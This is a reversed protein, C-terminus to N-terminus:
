GGEEDFRKVIVTKHTDREWVTGVTEYGFASRYWDARRHTVGWVGQKGRERAWQEGRRMLGGGIGRRRFGPHVLLQTPFACDALRAAAAAPLDPRPPDYEVIALYGLIREGSVALIVDSHPETACLTLKRRRREREEDKMAFGLQDIVRPIEEPAATRLEWSFGNSTHPAMAM